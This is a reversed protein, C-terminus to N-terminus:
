FFLIKKSVHAPYKEVLRISHAYLPEKKYKVYAEKKYSQGMIYITVSPLLM